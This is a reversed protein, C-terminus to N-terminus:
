FPLDRFYINLLKECLKSTGLPHLRTLNVIEHPLYVSVKIKEGPELDRPLPGIEGLELVDDDFAM